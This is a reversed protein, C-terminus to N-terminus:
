KSLQRVQTLRSCSWSERRISPRGEAAYLEDFLPSLKALEKALREKIGRLPHAAPVRQNLNITTLFEPRVQRKEHM